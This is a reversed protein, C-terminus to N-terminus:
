IIILINSRRIMMMVKMLNMVIDLNNQSILKNNKKKLKRKKKKDRAAARMGLIKSKLIWKETFIKLICGRNKDYNNFIKKLLELKIDEKSKEEKDTKNIQSINNYYIKIFSKLLLDKREQDKKIFINKLIENKINNRSSIVEKM